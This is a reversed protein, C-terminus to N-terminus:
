AEYKCKDPFKSDLWAAVVKRSDQTTSNICLMHKDGVFHEAYVCFKQFQTKGEFRALPLGETRLLTTTTAGKGEPTRLVNLQCFISIFDVDNFGRAKGFRMDRLRIFDKEFRETENRDFAVYDHAFM